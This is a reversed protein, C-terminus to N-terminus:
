RGAKWESAEPVPLPAPSVGYRYYLRLDAVHEVPRWTCLFSHNSRLVCDFDEVLESYVLSPFVVDSERQECTASLSLNLVGGNM